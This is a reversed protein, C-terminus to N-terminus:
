VKLLFLSKKIISNIFDDNVKKNQIFIHFYLSGLTMNIIDDIPQNEKEGVLLRQFAQKILSYREQWLIERKYISVEDKISLSAQLFSRGLSSQLFLALQDLMIKLSDLPELDTTISISDNVRDFIADIILADISSWRRYLTTRSIGTCKSIQQLSINGYGQSLLQEFLVDYIVKSNSRDHEIILAQQSRKRYEELPLESMILKSLILYTVCTVYKIRSYSNNKM